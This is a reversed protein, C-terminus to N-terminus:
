FRWTIWFGKMWEKTEPNWRRREILLPSKGRLFKYWRNVYEYWENM